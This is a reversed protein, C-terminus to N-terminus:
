LNNQYVLYRKIGYGSDEAHLSGSLILAVNGDNEKDFIYAQKTFAEWRRTDIGIRYREQGGHEAATHGHQGSKRKEDLFKVGAQFVYRDGLYAWRNMASLQRIEPLDAFGDGNGDHSVFGNEGHLLLGTSWRQDLHINGAANLEAKGFIDAYGNAMVSPEAQPKLFEVNIQGTVSEYGNKVSSAGKSVQISQMWSGPIYGLGYPSAAGRLNPINETLMQVYTGSLGLLKIQRAGTAADSYSVDVSPNTTFSEGLNCCAARRLEAASILDTNTVTLRSKRVGSQRAQVTVEGLSERWEPVTDTAPPDAAAPADAVPRGYASLSFLIWLVASPLLGHKKLFTMKMPTAFIGKKHRGAM